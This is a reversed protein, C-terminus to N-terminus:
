FGKFILQEAKTLARSDDFDYDSDNFNDFNSSDFPDKLEPVWPAPQEKEILQAFDIKSEAFWLHNKVDVHGKSLNGLRSTSRRVLLKKILDSATDNVKEPITYKELVIRKFMDIESSGRAYFPSRGVILEYMLVGFSWYDVSKGHGKSMIIEPALYEPTGVLTYTKDVVVKAFGLDVIKGYGMDDILINELKLDRYAIHRQHFHGLAEITCACYFAADNNLFGGGRKRNERRHLLSFLEGGQILPLLLYLNKSDQFSAELNLIFPHKLLCLFEKERIVGNAQKSTILKRKSIIKLAYPNEENGCSVLWVKGFAGQGIINIKKLDQLSVDKRDSLKTLVGSNGLRDIDGIVNEIKDQTLELVALNEECIVNDTHKVNSSGKQITQSGFYDGSKLSFMEETESKYVLMSGQQIIWLKRESRKGAEMLNEGKRYQVEQMQDALQGLETGTLDSKAIMPLSKLIKKRMEQEILDQLPGVITEFTQRDMALTNVDTLATVNATRPEGTLLASEGFSAGAELIQDEINSDGLGIDHVRVGGDQIIYFVNGEEGKQVIRDGKKWKVLTMANIFRCIIADELHNFLPIKRVIDKTVQKESNCTQALLQRFNKQDVKWLSVTESAAVCSVARPTDYLLALEGFCGGSGATGVPQEDLMFEIKGSEVVYFYDGVDGQKIITAGKKVIEEQMANILM